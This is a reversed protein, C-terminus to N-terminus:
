RIPLPPWYRTRKLKREPRRTSISATYARLRSISKIKLYIRYPLKGDNTAKWEFFGTAPVLCRQQEIYRKVWSKEIVTDDRLNILSKPRETKEWYPVLGWVM